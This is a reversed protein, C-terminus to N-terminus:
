FDHFRYSAFSLDGTWIWMAFLGDRETKMAHRQYPAHHVLSGPAVAAFLADDKQWLPSGSLTLYFEEAAHFHPPYFTEPFQWYFGFRLDQTPLLGDPGVIEASAFRSAFGTPISDGGSTWPFQAASSELLRKLPGQSMAALASDLGPVHKPEPMPPSAHSAALSRLLDAAQIAQRNATAVYLSAAESILSRM